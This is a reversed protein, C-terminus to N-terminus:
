TLWNGYQAARVPELNEPKVIGAVVTSHGDPPLERYRSLLLLSAILDADQQGSVLRSLVIVSRAGKVRVLDLGGVKMHHMSRVAPKTGHLSVEASLEAEFDSKREPSM